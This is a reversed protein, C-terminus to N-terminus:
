ATKRFKYVNKIVDPKEIPEGDFDPSEDFILTFYGEQLNYNMCCELSYDDTLFESIGHYPENSTEITKIGDPDILRDPHMQAYLDIKQYTSACALLINPYVNHKKHFKVVFIHITDDWISFDTIVGTLTLIGSEEM